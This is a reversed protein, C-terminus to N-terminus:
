ASFAICDLMIKGSLSKSGSARIQGNATTFLQVVCGCRPDPCQAAWRGSENKAFGLKRAAVKLKAAAQAECTAAVDLAERCAAWIADNGSQSKQHYSPRYSSGQKARDATAV